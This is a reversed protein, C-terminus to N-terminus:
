KKAESVPGDPHKKDTTVTVLKLTFMLLEIGVLYGQDLPITTEKDM